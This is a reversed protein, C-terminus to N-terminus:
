GIDEGKIFRKFGAKYQRSLPLKFGNRLKIEMSRVDVSVIFRTNVLFSKYCRAFYEPAQDSIAALSSYFSLEQKETALIIRKELSQFYLIGSAPVKVYEGGSKVTFMEDNGDPAEASAREAAIEKITQYVASKEPPVFLLGSVGVSPRVLKQINSKTASTVFVICASSKAARINRVTEVLEDAAAASSFIFADIEEMAKANKLLVEPEADYMVGIPLERREAAETLIDTVCPKQAKLKDFVAIALM